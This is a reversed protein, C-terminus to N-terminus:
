IRSCTSTKFCRCTSCLGCGANCDQTELDRIDGLLYRMFPFKSTPFRRAMIDQKYEDRSYTIIKKTINKLIDRFNTELLGTGGTIFITKDKFM